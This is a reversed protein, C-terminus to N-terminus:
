FRTLDFSVRNALTGLIPATSMKVTARNNPMDGPWVTPDLATDSTRRALADAPLVLGEQLKVLVEAEFVEGVALGAGEGLLEGLPLGVLLVRDRNGIVSVSARM